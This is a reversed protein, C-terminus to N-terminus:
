DNLLKHDKSEEFMVEKLVSHKNFSEGSDIERIRIDKDQSEEKHKNQKKNRADFRTFKAM